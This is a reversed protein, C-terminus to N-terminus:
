KHSLDFHEFATSSPFYILYQKFRYDCPMFLYISIYVQSTDQTHIRKHILIYTDTIIQRERNLLLLFVCKTKKFAALKNYWSLTIRTICPMVTTCGLAGLM